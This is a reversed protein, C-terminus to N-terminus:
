QSPGSARSAWPGSAEHQKMKAVYEYYTKVAMGIVGFLGLVVVFLPSTGLRNDIFWGLLGFLMPTGVLEVALGLANGFGQHLDQRAKLDV